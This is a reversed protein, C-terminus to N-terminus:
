SEMMLRMYSEEVDFPETDFRIMGYDQRTGEGLFLNQAAGVTIVAREVIVEKERAAEMLVEASRDDEAMLEVFYLTDERRFYIGYGKESSVITAGRAYLDTLVVAMQEPPFQVTDPYFRATVSDFEAQSWLNRSVERPLCRLAFARQFGKNELLAAQEQGAPVAVTFGAGRLKQQACLYDVLGALLLSGQGCLGYLYSGSRGKLTVPVALAAAVIEDNEEAVYINEAGAFKELATKIFEASDGREKQWLAVVAAEDSPQMLRYM